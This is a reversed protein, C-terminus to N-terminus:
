DSLHSSMGWVCVTPSVDLLHPLSKPVEQFSKESFSKESSSILITGIKSFVPQNKYTIVPLQDSSVKMIQEKNIITGIQNSM